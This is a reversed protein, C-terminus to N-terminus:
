TKEYPVKITKNMYNVLLKGTVKLIIIMLVIGLGIALAVANIDWFVCASLLCAGLAFYKIINIKLIFGKIRSQKYQVAHRIAWWTVKLLVLSMFCGISVSLTITFSQYSLSCAIVVLSVYFSMQLVRDPFGEDFLDEAKVSNDNITRKKM